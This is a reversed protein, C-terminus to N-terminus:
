PKPQAPPQMGTPPQGAPTSPSPSPAASPAPAPATLAKQKADALGAKCRDQLPGEDSCKIFSNVADDYHGTGEQAHGLVFFDVPDPTSALQVAQTLEAVAEEYKGRKFAMVGLGSHCMSLDDNKAATFRADDLEPPKVMTSVLSIAHRAYNEIKVFQDASGPATPNITRATAWVVLSLADVNDPDLNIAKQAVDMMKATDGSSLYDLALASYVSSLYRSSPYKQVFDEGLKIQATPDPAHADYFAKYAAEEEKNVPQAAQGAPQGATPMQGSPLQGSPAQGPVQGSPASGQSPSQSPPTSSSPAPSQNMQAQAAGAILLLAALVAGSTNLIKRKM